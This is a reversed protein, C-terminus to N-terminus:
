GRAESGETGSASSPRSSDADGDGTLVLRPSSWDANDIVVSAREWPRCAEFYLKQGDVYRRVHLDDAAAPLGDRVAMRRASEEFPVDIYLSYDWWRVLENRHLFIGEVLVIADGPAEVPVLDLRVDRDLDTAGWRYFGPGDARLPRLVDRELAVYDYSDLWFGEPSLRGRAYRRARLHHFDDVHVEVVSRGADRLAAALEAALVTKGSGDVGDIAVLRRGSPLAQLASSLHLLVERRSPM